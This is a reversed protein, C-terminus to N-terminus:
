SADAELCYWSYSRVESIRVSVEFAVRFGQMVADLKSYLTWFLDRLLEERAEASSAKAFGPKTLQSSGIRPSYSITSGRRVLTPQGRSTSMGYAQQPNREDVEEVTAEVLNYIEVPLRQAIIDLAESTKDLCALSEFLAEIYSFPELEPNLKAAQSQPTNSSSNLMPSPPAFSAPIAPSSPEGADDLSKPGSLLPDVSPKSALYHLYRQLQSAKRAGAMSIM